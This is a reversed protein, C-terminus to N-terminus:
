TEVDWPLPDVTELGLIERAESDFILSREHALRTREQVLLSAAGVVPLTTAWIGARAGASERAELWVRLEMAIFGRNCLHNVAVQWTAGFERMAEEALASAEDHSSLNRPVGFRAQLGAKPLLLEAAFARARQENQQVDRDGDRDLVVQVGEDLPDHLAHALEHALLVRTRAPRLERADLVIAAAAETKVTVAGGRTSLTRVLVAIGLSQEAIRRLDELPALPLKLSQRLAGALQYGHHAAASATDHRADMRDFTSWAPAPEDLVRGLDRLIAGQELADDLIALDSDFFDQAGIHRLYVSPVKVTVENGRRLADPDLSLERAVDDLQISTLGPQGAEFKALIDPDCGARVALETTTLGLRTRANVLVAAVRAIM